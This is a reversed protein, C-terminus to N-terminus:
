DGIGVVGAQAQDIGALSDGGQFAGGMIMAMVMTVWFCIGFNACPWVGVNPQIRHESDLLHVADAIAQDGGLGGTSCFEGGIGGTVGGLQAPEIGLQGLLEIGIGALRKYGEM